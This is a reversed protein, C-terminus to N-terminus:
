SLIPVNCFSFYCPAELPFRDSHRPHLTKKQLLALLHILWIVLTHVSSSQPSTDRDQDSFCELEDDSISELLEIGGDTYFDNLM